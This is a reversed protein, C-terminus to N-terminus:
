RGGDMNTFTVRMWRDPIVKISGGNTKSDQVMDSWSVFVIDHVFDELIAIGVPDNLNIKIVRTRTDTPTANSNASIRKIVRPKEYIGYDAYVHESEEVFVPSTM